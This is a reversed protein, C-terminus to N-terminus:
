VNIAPCCDRASETLSGSYEQGVQIAVGVTTAFTTGVEMERVSPVMTENYGFADINKDFIHNLYDAEDQNIPGDSAAVAIMTSWFSINLHDVLRSNFDTLEDPVLGGEQAARANKGVKLKLAVFERRVDNAESRLAARQKASYSDYV